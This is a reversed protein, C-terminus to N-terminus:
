KEEPFAFIVQGDISGPDDRIVVKGQKILDKVMSWVRKPGMSTVVDPDSLLRSPNVAGKQLLWNLVMEEDRNRPKSM